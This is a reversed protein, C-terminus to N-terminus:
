RPLGLPVDQQPLDNANRIGLDVDYKTRFSVVLPRRSSYNYNRPATVLKNCYEICMEETQLDPKDIFFNDADECPGCSVDFGYIIVNSSKTQVEINLLKYNLCKIQYEHNDVRVNTENIIKNASSM